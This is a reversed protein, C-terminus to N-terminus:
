CEVSLKSLANVILGKEIVSGNGNPDLEFRINGGILDTTDASTLTVNWMSRDDADIIAMTKELETGDTKQMYIKLISTVPPIYRLNKQVNYLKLALVIQTGPVFELSQIEFFTNLEADSNLLHAAFM